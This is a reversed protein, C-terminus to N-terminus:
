EKTYEYWRALQEQQASVAADVDGQAILGAMRRYFALADARPYVGETARFFSVYVDRFTNVIMPYVVNGSAVAVEHHFEFSLSALENPDTTQEMQSCLHDLRQSEQDNRTM